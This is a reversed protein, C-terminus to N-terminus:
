GFRQTLRLAIATSVVGHHSLSSVMIRPSGDTTTVMWVAGGVQAFIDMRSLDRKGIDDVNYVGMRVLTHSDREMVYWTVADGLAFLTNVVCIMRGKPTDKM